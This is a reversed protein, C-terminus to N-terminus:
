TLKWYMVGSRSENRLRPGVLRRLYHLNVSKTNRGAEDVHTQYGWVSQWLRDFHCPGSLLEATLLTLLPTLRVSNPGIWLLRTQTELVYDRHKCQPPLTLIRHTYGTTKM